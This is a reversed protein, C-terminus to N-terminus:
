RNVLDQRLDRRRKRFVRAGNQDGRRARAFCRPNRQRQHAGTEDARAANEHQLWPAKGGAGGSVTHGGRKAFLHALTDAQPHAHFRFGGGAGPDLDDGLAHKGAHDEVIGRKLAHAGNQEVFEVLAREVGIQAQRQREIRM